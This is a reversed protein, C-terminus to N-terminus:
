AASFKGPCNVILVQDARLPLGDLVQYPLAQYPLQLHDLVQQVKDYEGLTVLVEGGRFEEAKLGSAQEVSARVAGATAEYARTMEDRFRRRERKVHPRDVYWGHVYDVVDAVTAVPLTEVLEAALRRGAPDANTALVALGVSLLPSDPEHAALWRLARRHLGPGAALLDRHAAEVAALDRARTGLLRELLDQQVAAPVAPEFPAAAPDPQSAPNSM